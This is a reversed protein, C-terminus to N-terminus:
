HIRWVPHATVVTVSGTVSPDVAYNLGLIDGLIAKAAEHVDVGPFNLNVEANPSMPAAAPAPVSAPPSLQALAAPSCLVLGLALLYRHLMKATM